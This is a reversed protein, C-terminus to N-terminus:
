VRRVHNYLVSRRTGRVGTTHKMSKILPIQFPSASARVASTVALFLAILLLIAGSKGLLATLAAPAVAGAQALSVPM